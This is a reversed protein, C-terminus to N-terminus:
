KDQYQKNGKIPISALKKRKRRMAKQESCHTNIKDLCDQSLVPPSEITKNEQDQMAKSNSLCEINGM